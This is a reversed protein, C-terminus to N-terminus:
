PAPVFDVWLSRRTVWSSGDINCHKGIAGTGPWGYRACWGPPTFIRISAGSTVTGGPKVDRFTGNSLQVPAVRDSGYNNHLTIGSAQAASAMLMSATLVALTALAALAPKLRFNV